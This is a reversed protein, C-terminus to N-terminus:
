FDFFGSGTPNKKEYKLMRDGLGWMPIASSLGQQTQAKMLPTGANVAALTNNGALGRGIEALSKPAAALGMMGQRASTAANLANAIESNINGRARASAAIGSEAGRQAVDGLARIGTPTGLSGRGLLRGLVDEQAERTKQKILNQEARTRRAVESEVGGPRLLSEIKQRERYSDGMLGQFLGQMEPSLQLNYRKNAEDYEAKGVPDFVSIPRGAERVDESYREAAQTQQKAAKRGSVMQLGLGILSPLGFGM